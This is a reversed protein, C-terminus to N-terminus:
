KDDHRTTNDHKTTNCRTSSHHHIRWHKAGESVLVYRKHFISESADSISCSPAWDFRFHALVTDFPHWLPPLRTALVVCPHWALALICWPHTWFSGQSISRRNQWSLGYEILNFRILNKQIMNLRTLDNSWTVDHDASGTGITGGVHTTNLRTIWIVDSRSASPRVRARLVPAANPAQPHGLPFDLVPPRTTRPSETTPPGGLWMTGRRGGWGFSCEIM